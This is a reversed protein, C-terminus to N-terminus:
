LDKAAEHKQPDTQPGGGSVQGVPLMGNVWAVINGSARKSVSYAVRSTGHIAERGEDTFWNPHALMVETIAGRVIRTAARRLPTITKAM